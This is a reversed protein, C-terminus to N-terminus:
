IDIPDLKKNFAALIANMAAVELAASSSVGKGEPVASSVLLDFGESFDVKGERQLALVAGAVYAAWHQESSPAFRQRADEYEIPGTDTVFEQLEMEFVRAQSTNTTEVSAVRVRHSNNKQLAVHAAAAIPMQLVLSGSYDAIGGMVDLRGPARTVIVGNAATLFGDIPVRSILSDLSAVFEQTDRFEDTSESLITFGM